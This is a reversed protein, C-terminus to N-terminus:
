TSKKEGQLWQELALAMLANLGGEHSAARDRVRNLLDAPLRCAVSVLKNTAEKAPKERKAGGEAAGQAFRKPISAAKMRGDLKKALHKELDAKKMSM